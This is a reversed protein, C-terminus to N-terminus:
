KNIEQFILRLETLPKGVNDFIEVSVMEPPEGAAQEGISRTLVRWAEDKADQFTPGQVLIQSAVDTGSITTFHFDSM